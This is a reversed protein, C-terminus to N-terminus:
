ITNSNCMLKVFPVSFILRRLNLKIKNVKINNAKEKNLFIQMEAILKFRMVSRNTTIFYIIVPM